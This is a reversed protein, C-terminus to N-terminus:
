PELNNMRFIIPITMDAAVNKGNKDRIPTLKPMAKMVRLAERDCLPSVSQVVKIDSIYGNADMKYSLVVTGQEENEIAIVPYVLNKEIFQLIFMDNPDELSIDAPENNGLDSRNGKNIVISKIVAESEFDEFRLRTYYGDIEVRKTYYDMDVVFLVNKLQESAVTAGYLQEIGTEELIFTYGIKADPYKNRLDKLSSGVGINKVTKALPNMVIINEINTTYGYDSDYALLLIYDNDGVIVYPQITGDDAVAFSRQTPYYKKVEDVDMGITLCGVGNSSIDVTQCQANIYTSCTLILLLTFLRTKMHNQTNVRKNIKIGQLHKM